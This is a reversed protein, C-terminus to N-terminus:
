NRLGLLELLFLDIRPGFFYCAGWLSLIDCSRNENDITYELTCFHAIKREFCHRVFLWPMLHMQQSRFSTSEASSPMSEVHVSMVRRARLISVM